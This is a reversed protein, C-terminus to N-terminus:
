QPMGTKSGQEKSGQKPLRSGPDLRQCAHPREAPFRDKFARSYGGLEDFTKSAGHQKEMVRAGIKFEVVNPTNGLTVVASYGRRCLEGAIFFQSANGRSSKDRFEQENPLM